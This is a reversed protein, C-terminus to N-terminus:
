KSALTHLYPSVWKLPGCASESIHMGEDSFVSPHLVSSLLASIAAVKRKNCNVHLIWSSRVLQWVMQVFSFPPYHNYTISQPVETLCLM